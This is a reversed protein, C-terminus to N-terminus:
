EDEVSRIDDLPLAFQIAPFGQQDTGVGTVIDSSLGLRAAFDRKLLDKASSWKGQDRMTFSAELEGSPLRRVRRLRPRILRKGDNTKVEVSFGFSDAAKPLNRRIRRVIKREPKSLGAGRAIFSIHLWDFALVVALLLVVAAIAVLPWYTSIFDTLPQSM